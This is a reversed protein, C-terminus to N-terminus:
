ELIKKDSINDTNLKAITNILKEIFREQKKSNKVLIHKKTQIHEGIIM